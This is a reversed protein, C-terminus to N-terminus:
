INNFLYKKTLQKGQEVAPQDFPNVGLLTCFTITEIISLAMLQGILFEDIDKCFIERMPLGNKIFIDITSQQEAQMLDGMKKGALYSVKFKKLIESNMKLGLDSHNKTIFTFFKDRPGDLYLQLQSHQDTTGISHIPTIGKSNKGVSEAWLQLYWKGFFFLADSYTMLVNLNIKRLKQLSLILHASILHEKFFGDKIQSILDKAGDRIKTIDLGAISAVLLGVNSFVSYRGGIDPHHYLIRCNYNNAIQKLPSEKNETIVCCEELLYKGNKKNQLIEILASFQCLTEPTNGSKSIIIIGLKEIDFQQISNQFKIPDINDYFKIKNSESGHLINVLAKAGLNSGGTGLVIFQNKNKSLQKSIINIENIDNLENIINLCPLNAFIQSFKTTTNEVKNLEENIKQIDVNHYRVEFNIM